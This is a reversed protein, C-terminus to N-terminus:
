RREEGKKLRTKAVSSAASFLDRDVPWTPTGIMGGYVLLSIGRKSRKKEGECAFREWVVVVVM